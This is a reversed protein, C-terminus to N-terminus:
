ATLSNALSPAMPALREVVKGGLELQRADCPHHHRRGHDLLRDSIQRASELAVIDDDVTAVGVVNVVDTAGFSERRLPNVVDIRAGAAAHPSELAAEALHDAALRWHDLM